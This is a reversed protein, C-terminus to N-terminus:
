LVIIINQNWQERRYVKDELYDCVDDYANKHSKFKRETLETIYKPIKNTKM